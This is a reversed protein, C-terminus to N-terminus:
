LTTPNAPDLRSARELAEIVGNFDGRSRAEDASQLLRNITGKSILQPRKM